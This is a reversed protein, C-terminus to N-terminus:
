KVGQEKEIKGFAILSTSLICISMILLLFKKKM